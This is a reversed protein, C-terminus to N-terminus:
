CGHRESEGGARSFALALARRTLVGALHRQYAVSAHINGLPEIEKDAAAAVDAFLAPSAREGLLLEAATVATVPGDGANLYVLRARSCSGDAALTVSVAVGMMAYDGRRRALELFASGSRPPLVPLAVEVLLEDPELDVTFMGHFFDTAGLWREGSENVLRLRADLALMVVPLEAAPDAHVLSGGLTGRNRIQPHAISPLAEALLPAQKAVAPHRELQRQRAMAGLRLEGGEIPQVHDLDAVGNLDILLAPQMVRFNMAPILSQGGALLKADDGCDALLSLVAALSDPAVYDFPAPKM